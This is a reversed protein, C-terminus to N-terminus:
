LGANRYGPSKPGIKTKLLNLPVLLSVDDSFVTKAALVRKIACNSFVSRLSREAPREADRSGASGGEFM